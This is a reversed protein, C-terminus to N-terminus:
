FRVIDNEQPTILIINRITGEHTDQFAKSAFKLAEISSMVNFAPGNFLLTSLRQLVTQKDSATEHYNYTLMHPPYAYDIGGYTIVSYTLDTGAKFM